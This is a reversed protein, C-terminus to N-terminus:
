GASVPSRSLRYGFGYETGIYEAGEAAEALRARLGRIATRLLPLEDSYEPGWADHLLQRHSVLGGRHRALSALLRFETPTLHVERGRVLVRHAEVDVVLDQHHIVERDGDASPTSARRLAAQVRALFERFSFPKTIYDDAGLQLGRIRESEAGLASVFLIPVTTLERIRACVEWGDLRPLGIDLTVLAPQWEYAARLAEAGDTAVRTEMGARELWLVLLDAFEPEDEVVLIRRSM